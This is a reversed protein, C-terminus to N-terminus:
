RLEFALFLTGLLLVVNVMALVNGTKIAGRKPVNRAFNSAWALLATLIAVPVLLWTKAMSWMVRPIYPHSTAEMAVLSSSLKNSLAKKNEELQANIGRIATEGADDIKKKGDPEYHHSALATWNNTEDRVTASFGAEDSKIQDMAAMRTKILDANGNIISLVLAAQNKQVDNAAKKVEAKSSEMQGRADNLLNQMAQIQTTVKFTAVGTILLVAVGFLALISRFYISKFYGKQLSRDIEEDLTGSALGGSKLSERVAELFVNFKQTAGSSKQADFRSQEAVMKLKRFRVMLQSDNPLALRLKDEALAIWDEFEMSLQLDGLRGIADSYQMAEMRTM